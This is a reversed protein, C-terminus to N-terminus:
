GKFYDMSVKPKWQKDEPDKFITTSSCLVGALLTSRVLPEQNASHGKSLEDLMIQDKSTYTQIMDVISTERETMSMPTDAHHGPSNDAPGVNTGTGINGAGNSGGEQHSLQRTAEEQVKKSGQRLEEESLEFSVQGVHPDFGHGSVDFKQEGCVMKVMTMKGETLTGTKDTCIISASGLTEVAALKRVMVNRKVMRSCGSSLSITVCLPIGEPIAAVALTVSVLIMYMWSEKKQEEDQGTCYGLFLQSIKFNGSRRSDVCVVHILRFLSFYPECSNHHFVVAILYITIAYYYVAWHFM